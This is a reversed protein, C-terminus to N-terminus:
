MFNKLFVCLNCKDLEKASNNRSILWVQTFYLLEGTGQIANLTVHIIDVLSAMYVTDSSQSLPYRVLIGLNYPTIEMPSPFYISM